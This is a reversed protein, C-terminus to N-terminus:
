ARGGANTRRARRLAWEALTAREMASIDEYAQQREPRSRVFERLVALVATHDLGTAGAM